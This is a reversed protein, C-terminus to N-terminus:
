NCSIGDDVVGNCDDDVGNCTEPSPVVDGVCPGWAGNMGTSIGSVCVGVGLTEPPGSYCPQMLGDICELNTGLIGDCDDDKGNCTDPIPLVEGICDGWKGNECTEVGAKCSGMGKTIPPGSYCEKMEGSVCAGGGSSSSTTAGSSSATTGSSSSATTGGSSTTTTGGGQGGTGAMAGGSGPPSGGSGAM